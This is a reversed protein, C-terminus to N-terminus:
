ADLPAFCWRPQYIIEVAGLSIIVSSGIPDETNPTEQSSAGSTEVARAQALVLCDEGVHSLIGRYNYRACLVAVPQGLFQQAVQAMSAAAAGDIEVLNVKSKVKAMIVVGQIHNLYFFPCCFM